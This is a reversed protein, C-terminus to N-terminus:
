GRVPYLGWLTLSAMYWGNAMPEGLKELPSLDLLHLFLSLTHIYLPFSIITFCTCPGCHLYLILLSFSYIYDYSVSYWYVSFIYLDQYYVDWMGPEVYLVSLSVVYLSGLVSM